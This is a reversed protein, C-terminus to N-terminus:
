NYVSFSAMSDVYLYDLYTPCGLSSLIIGGGGGKFFTFIM